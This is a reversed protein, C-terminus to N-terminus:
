PHDHRAAQRDGNGRGADGDGAAGAGLLVGGTDNGLDRRALELLFFNLGTLTNRPTTLLLAWMSPTCDFGADSRIEHDFFMLTFRDFAGRQVAVIGFPVVGACALASHGPFDNRPLPSAM